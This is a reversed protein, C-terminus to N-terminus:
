IRLGRTKIFFRITYSVYSKSVSMKRPAGHLRNFLQEITRCGAGTLAALRLVEKKVWAPKPVGRCPSPPRHRIRFGPPRPGRAGRARSRLFWRVIRHM